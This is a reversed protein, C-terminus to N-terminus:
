IKNFNRLLEMGYKHSKEPHFQVGYINEHQFAAVFEYGYTTTGLVDAEQNCQVHYSHVFYYRPDASFDETLKSDKKYHVDNWGMHPV